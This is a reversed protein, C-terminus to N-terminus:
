MLYATLHRRTSTEHPIVVIGRLRKSGQQQKPLPVLIPVCMARTNNGSWRCILEVAGLSGPKRDSSLMLVDEDTGSGALNYVLLRM